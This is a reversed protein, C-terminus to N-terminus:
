LFRRAIRNYTTNKEIIDEPSINRLYKDFSIGDWYHHCYANPFDLDKEFIRKVDFSYYLPYHFSDYPEIHILEPYQKSLELPKRVSMESWYKDYGKSRFNRFENYWLKLFESDKNAFIVGNCLGMRRWKGQKGLVLDHSLLPAFSKKCIVDMDLYIGGRDILIQLRLVDSKHAVHYLRKDFVSNPPTVKKYEVFPSIKDWYKGEPLKDSYFYIKEPNNLIRISNVNIYHALPFVDNGKYFYILHFINPIM